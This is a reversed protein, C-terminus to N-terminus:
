ESALGSVSRERSRDAPLSTIVLGGLTLLSGFILFGTLPEGFITVGAAGGIAAQSANILNVRTVPLLGYAAAVAFFAVANFVSALLIWVYSPEAVSWVIAPGNFAVALMGVGFVGTAGILVLSAAVTLKAQRMKRIVVGVGGYGVGSLCGAMVALATTSVDGTRNASATSAAQSLTAVAVIMVAMASLTRWTVPEGLVLRGGVAGTIILTSFTLPVTLALGGLALAYQFSLNGVFQTLFGALLLQPVVALPPFGARGKSRHWLCILLAATFAVLAKNATIWVAWPFDDPRSAQRLAVNALSYSIASTATLLSGVLVPRRVGAADLRGRLGRNPPPVPLSADPQEGDPTTNSTAAQNGDTSVDRSM